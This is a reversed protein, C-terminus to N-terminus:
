QKSSRVRQWAGMVLQRSIDFSRGGPVESLSRSM